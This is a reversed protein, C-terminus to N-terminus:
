REVVVRDQWPWRHGNEAFWRVTRELGEKLSVKPAWGTAERLLTSDAQLHDIDNHRYRTDDVELELKGGMIEAVYEAVERVSHSHNSGINVAQGAAIASSNMTAILARGTDQVYTYDRRADVNGLRIPGGLHHQRIIEPIVYPETERPGYCNFLRAVVVPIGHERHLTFSVRDAALKSVAYTNAASLPHTETLPVAGPNGYVEATSAYVIREVEYERCAMLLNLHGELNVRIFRRPMDYATPVYTEGVLNFVREPRYQKFASLVCWEDLLDVTVVDIESRLHALNARTGTQFNDFVVVRAGERVLEEVLSSGVFGAGGAVM